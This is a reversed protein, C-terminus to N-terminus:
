NVETSKVIMIFNFNKIEFHCFILFFSKELGTGLELKYEGSIESKYFRSINKSKIKIRNLPNSSIM